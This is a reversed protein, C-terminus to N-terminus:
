LIESILDKKTRLVMEARYTNEKLQDKWQIKQLRMKEKNLKKYTKDKKSDFYLKLENPCTWYRYGFPIFVIPRNRKERIIKQINGNSDVFYDCKWKYVNFYDLFEQQEYIRVQKCYKSFAEDFSKGIYKNIIRQAKVWPLLSNDSLAWSHDFRKLNYLDGYKETLYAKRSQRKPLKDLKELDIM